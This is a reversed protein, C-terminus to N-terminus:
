KYKFLFFNTTPETTKFNLFNIFNQQQEGLALLFM